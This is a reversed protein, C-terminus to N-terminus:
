PNQKDLFKGTVIISKTCMTLTEYPERIKLDFVDVTNDFVSAIMSETITTKLGGAAYLRGLVNWFTSNVNNHRLSSKTLFIFDNGKLELVACKERKDM